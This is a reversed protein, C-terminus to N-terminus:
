RTILSILCTGSYKQPSLNLGSKKSNRLNISLEKVWSEHRSDVCLGETPTCEHLKLLHLCSTKFKRKVETYYGPKLRIFSYIQTIHTLDKQKEIFNTKSVVKM